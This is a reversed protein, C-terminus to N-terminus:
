RAASVSPANARLMRTGEGTIRLYLDSPQADMPVFYGQAPPTNTVKFIATGENVEDFMGVFATDIGLDHATQFQERLFAGDRRPIGAPKATTQQLNNWSFGPYIEPIYLMHNRKAEAFDDAWPETGARLVGEAKRVHGANWPIYANFSRYIKAWAPDPLTRWRWDGSGALYAQYKGPAEFFNIIQEAEAASFRSGFFGFLTLVPKGDQQLYQADSTVHADDVLHRWYSELTSVLKDSPYNTMDLEVCFVRGTRSAAHRVCQMVKAQGPGGLDSLFQQLMIGDIGYQRMWDFHLDVTEQDVPSYLCAQRGDPYTFNGAPYQKTYETMDPWMDVVLSDPAIATPIRSWHVWGAHAGDGPTRFWGQYGCVVKGELSSADVVAPDAAEARAAILGFMAAAIPLAKYLAPKV